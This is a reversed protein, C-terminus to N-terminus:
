NIRRCPRTSALWSDFPAWNRTLANFSLPGEIYMAEFRASQMALPFSVAASSFPVDQGPVAAARMATEGDIKGSVHTLHDGDQDARPGLGPYTSVGSVSRKFKGDADSRRRRSRVRCIIAWLFCSKGKIDFGTSPNLRWVGGGLQGGSGPRSPDQWILAGTQGVLCLTDRLPREPYVAQTSTARNM